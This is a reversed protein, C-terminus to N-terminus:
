QASTTKPPEWFQILPKTGGTPPPTAATPVFKNGGRDGNGTVKHVIKKTHNIVAVIIIVILTIVVAYALNARMEAVADNPPYLTMITKSIASNWALAITFGLGSTALTAYNISM